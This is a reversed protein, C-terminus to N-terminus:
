NADIDAGTVIGNEKLIANKISERNDLARKILAAGETSEWRTPLENIFLKSDIDKNDSHKQIYHILVRALQDTYALDILNSSCRDALTTSTDISTQYLKGCIKRILLELEDMFEALDKKPIGNITKSGDSFKIDTHAIHKDRWIKIPGYKTLISEYITKFEPIQKLYESILSEKDKDTAAVLEIDKKTFDYKWNSLDYKWLDHIHQDTPIYGDLIKMATPVSASQPNKDMLRGLSSIMSSFLAQHLLYVTEIHFLSHTYPIDKKNDYFLEQMAKYSNLAERINDSLVTLIPSQTVEPNPDIPQHIKM